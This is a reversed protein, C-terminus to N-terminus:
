ISEQGHPERQQDMEESARLELYKTSYSTKLLIFWSKPLTEWRYQNAKWWAALVDKDRGDVESAMEKQLEEYLPRADAKTLRLGERAQELLDAEDAEDGSSVLFRGKMWEKIAYSKAIGSTQAGTFPLGITTNEPEDKEGSSHKLTIAFDYQAISRDEGKSTTYELMAFGTQSVHTSLGNDAMIPRLADKFDDISTFDYGGHKNRDDKSLREIKAMVKCVSKDLESM